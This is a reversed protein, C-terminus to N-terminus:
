PPDDAIETARATPMSSASVRSRAPRPSAAHAARGDDEGGAAGAAMDKRGLSQSAFEGRAADAQCQDGVIAAPLPRALQRAM